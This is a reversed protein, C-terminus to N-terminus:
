WCALKGGQWRAEQGVASTSEAPVDLSPVILDFGSSRANPRIIIALMANAAFRGWPKVVIQLSPWVHETDAFVFTANPRASWKKNLTRLPLKTHECAVNPPLVSPPTFSHETGVPLAGGSPSGPSGGGLGSM